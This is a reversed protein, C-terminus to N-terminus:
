AKVVVASNNKELDKYARSLVLAERRSFGRSRLFSEYERISKIGDRPTM